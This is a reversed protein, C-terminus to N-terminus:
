QARGQKGCSRCKSGVWPTKIGGQLVTARKQCHPCVLHRNALRTTALAPLLALFIGYSSRGMFFSAIMISAFAGAGYILIAKQHLRM